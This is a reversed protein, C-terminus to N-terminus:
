SVKGKSVVDLVLRATKELSGPEGLEQHLTKLAQRIRDRAAKDNLLELTQKALKSETFNSQVLEPVVSEKLLVNPLAMHTKRILTKDLLYTTTSRKLVAISPVGLLAAELSATGCNVVALSSLRLIDYSNDVVRAELNDVLDSWKDLLDRSVTPALSIVVVLNPLERKVRLMAKLMTPLLSKVEVARGGPLLSVVPVDAPIDLSNQIPQQRIPEVLDILPHGVFEVNIGADDFLATEQRTVGAVKQVVQGMEQAKIGSIGGSFPTYYYVVPIGKCKALKILRFNFVPWGIQILVDPQHKDMYDSVRQVVRKALHVGKFSDLVGFTDLNSMDYVLTVGSQQMRSGGIGMLEVEPSLQKLRNALEAGYRDSTNDGGVIMIKPHPMAM